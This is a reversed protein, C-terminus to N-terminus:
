TTGTHRRPGGVCARGHCFGAARDGCGDFTVM